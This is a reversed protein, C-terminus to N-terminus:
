GGLDLSLVTEIGCKRTLSLYSALLLPPTISTRSRYLLQHLHERFLGLILVSPIVSGLALPEGLGFGADLIEPECGRPWRGLTM